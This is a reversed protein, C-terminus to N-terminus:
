LPSFDHPIGTKSSFPSIVFRRQGIDRSFLLCDRSKTNQAHTKIGTAGTNRPASTRVSASNLGCDYIYLM